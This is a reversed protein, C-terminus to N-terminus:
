LLLSPSRKSPKWVIENIHHGSWGQPWSGQTSSALTIMQNINRCLTTCSGTKTFDSSYDWWGVFYIINQLEREEGLVNRCMAVAVASCCWCSFIKYQYNRLLFQYLMIWLFTNLITPFFEEQSECHRLWFLKTLDSLTSSNYSNWIKSSM